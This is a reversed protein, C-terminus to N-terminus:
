KILLLVAIRGAEGGLHSPSRAAGRLSNRDRVKLRKAARLPKNCFEIISLLNNFDDLQIDTNKQTGSLRRLYLKEWRIFPPNSTM